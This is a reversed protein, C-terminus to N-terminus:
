AESTALHARLKRVAKYKEDSVRDAGIRLEASIEQVTWGEMSMQLIRQQRATLVEGAARRVAEREEARTRDRMESADTVQDVLPALKRSRQTRKKVADIARLFERRDESEDNILVRSWAHTPVRELLRRFVEQTCDNWSDAPLRANRWCATCYRSLDAVTRVTGADNEVARATTPALATLATGLLVAAVYQRHRRASPASSNMIRLNETMLRHFTVWRDYLSPPPENEDSGSSTKREHYKGPVAGRARGPTNGCQM